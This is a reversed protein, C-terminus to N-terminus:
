KPKQIVLSRLGFDDPIRCKKECSERQLGLPMPNKMRSLAHKEKYLDTRPNLLVHRLRRFQPGESFFFHHVDTDCWTRRFTRPRTLSNAFSSAFRSSSIGLLQFDEPNRRREEHRLVEERGFLQDQPPPRPPPRNWPIYWSFQQGLIRLIIFLIGTLSPTLAKM